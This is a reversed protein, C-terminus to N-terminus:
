NQDGLLDKALKVASKLSGIDATGTGALDLATGHDVSTRVFPLGLTVNVISGFSAYKIVPLGQDHFMAIIVDLKELSKQTFATDAPLPGLLQLGEIRLKQIVPDLILLEENGIYGSEGAHPNIGCIGIRPNKIKFLRRMDSHTVRIVSEVHSTTIIGLAKSVPVHNTVLAVRLKKEVLMMVPNAVGTINGLFETHGVFNNGGQILTSKQVPCTVLGSFQGDICKEAAIRLMEVVYPANAVSLEGAKSPIPLKIPLLQAHGGPATIINNKISLPLNIQAARESLLNPDCLICLPAIIEKQLLKIVLEPGIGAPEGTTIALLLNKM